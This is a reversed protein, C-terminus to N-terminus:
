KSAEELLKLHLADTQAFLSEITGDNSLVWTAIQLREKRPAQAQLVARIQKNTWGNRTKVREIQMAPPCDVVIIGEALDQWGGKEALLPVVVVIYPATKYQAIQAQAETRILPHVIAELRQRAATDSFVLDRVFARNM